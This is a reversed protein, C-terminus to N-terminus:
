ETIEKTIPVEGTAEPPLRRFIEQRDAVWSAHRGGSRADQEDLRAEIRRQGSDLTNLTRVVLEQTAKASEATVQHEDTNKTIIENKARTLKIEFLKGGAAIIAVIIAVAASILQPMTIYGGNQQGALAWRM